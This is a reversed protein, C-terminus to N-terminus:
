KESDGLQLQDLAHGLVSNLLAAFNGEEISNNDLPVTLLDEFSKRIKRREGASPLLQNVWHKYTEYALTDAAQLQVVGPIFIGNDAEDAKRVFSSDDGLRYWARLEPRERINELLRKLEKEGDAGAEFVYKIAENHGHEDAWRAVQRMCDNACITYCYEAQIARRLEISVSDWFSRRMGSSVGTGFAGSGIPDKIIQQAEAVVRARRAENWGGHGDAKDRVFEGHFSELDARHFVKIGERELFPIWKYEFQRWQDVTAVYGAVSYADEPGTSEDLYARFMAVVRRGLTAEDQPFSACVFLEFGSDCFGLATM